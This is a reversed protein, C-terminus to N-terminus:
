TSSCNLFMSWADQDQIMPTSLCCCTICMGQCVLAALTTCQTQSSKVGTQTGLLGLLTSCLYFLPSPFSKMDGSFHVPQDRLSPWARSFHVRANRANCGLLLPQIWFWCHVGKLKYGVLISAYNQWSLSGGPVWKWALVVLKNWWGTGPSCVSAGDMKWSFLSHHEKLCPASSIGTCNHM